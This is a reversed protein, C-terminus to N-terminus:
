AVVVRMSVHIVYRFSTFSPPPVCKTYWFCVKSALFPRVRIQGESKVWVCSPTTEGVSCLYMMVPQIFKTRAM